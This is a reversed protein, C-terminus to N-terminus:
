ADSDDSRLGLFRSALIGLVVLALLAGALMALNTPSPSRLVEMLRDGVFTLMVIGPIMGIATGLFFDRFGVPSAGAALNVVSFPAVPLNRLVAVAVVGREAIRDSIERGSDGIVGRFAERGTTRGVGFVAVGSAVSGAWSVLAGEVPGLAAVTAIVLVSVPVAAFGAAIFLVVFLAPAGPLAALGELRDPLSELVDRLADSRWALALAGAVIFPIALRAIETKKAPM